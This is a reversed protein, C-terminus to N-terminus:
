CSLMDRLDFGSPRAPDYGEPGWQLYKVSAAVEHLLGVARRMGAWGAAASVRGTKPNTRPHDSDYALCVHKGNFLPLWKDLFTSCGPVALVGATAALSRAPNATQRPGQDTLKACQLLEWLVMGDWPGECVYITPRAAQQLMDAAFLHHGV